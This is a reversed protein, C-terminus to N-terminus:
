EIDLLNTIRVIRDSNAQVQVKISELARHHESHPSPSRLKENEWPVVTEAPPTAASSMLVRGLQKELSELLNLQRGLESFIVTTESERATQPDNSISYGGM